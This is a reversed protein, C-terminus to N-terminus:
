CVSIEEEDSFDFHPISNTIESIKALAEQQIKAIEIIKALEAKKKARYRDSCKKASAKSQYHKYKIYGDPKPATPHIYNAKATIYRLNTIKNDSRVRNIHDIVNGEPRDGIFAKAVLHHIYLNKGKITIRKYGNTNMWGKLTREGNKINGFNSIHYNELGTPRWQEVENSM